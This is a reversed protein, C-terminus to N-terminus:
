LEVCKGEAVGNVVYYAVNEEPKVYVEVTKIADKNGDAKYAEKVKAVVDEVVTSKGAFEITCKVTEKACAAKAKPEAKAAKAKPEAKAAKVEVAETKVEAKVEKAATKKTNAM